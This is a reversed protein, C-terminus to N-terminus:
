SYLVEPDVYKELMRHLDTSKFSYCRFHWEGDTEFYATNMCGLIEGCGDKYTIRIILPGFTQPHDFLSFECDLAKIDTWIASMEEQSLSKLLIIEGNETFQCIEIEAIEDVNQRFVYPRPGLECGAFIFVFATIMLVMVLAKKM